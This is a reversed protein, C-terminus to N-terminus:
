TRSSISSAYRVFMKALNTSPAGSWVSMEQLWTKKSLQQPESNNSPRRISESDLVAIKDQLSEETVGIKSVLEHSPERQYRTEPVFLLIAAFNLGTLIV